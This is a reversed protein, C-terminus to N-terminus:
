VGGEDVVKILEPLLAILAAAQEIVRSARIADNVDAGKNNYRDNIPAVRLVRQIEHLRRSLSLRTM